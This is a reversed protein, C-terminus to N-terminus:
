PLAEVITIRTPTAPFSRKYFPRIVVTPEGLLGTFRSIITGANKIPQGALAEKLAKEDYVWVIRTDGVVSFDLTPNEVSPQRKVVVALNTTEGFRVPVETFDPIAVRAVSLAFQKEPVIYATATAALEIIAGEGQSPATPGTTTAIIIAGPFLIFGQPVAASIEKMLRESLVAEMEGYKQLKTADDVKPVNGIFGGKIDSKSKASFKTYRSPDDKFGPITFETMGINYAPGAEDAYVLADVSGPVTIGNQVTRGPITVSTDIRYILGSATAFRTNKVLRQPSTSFNNYITITGRAKESVFTQGTAPVEVSSIKGLSITEFSLSEPAGSQDAVINTSVSIPVQKPTVTVSAKAFVMLMTAVFFIVAILAVLWMVVRFGRRRRPVERVIEARTEPSPIRVREETVTPAVPEVRSRNPLTVNRISRREPPVVDQMPKKGM